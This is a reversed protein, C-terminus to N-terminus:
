KILHKHDKGKFYEARVQPSVFKYEMFLKALGVHPCVPGNLLTELRHGTARIRWTIRSCSRLEAPEEDSPFSSTWCTSAPIHGSFLTSLKWIWFTLSLFPAGLAPRLILLLQRSPCRLGQCPGPGQFRMTMRWFHRNQCTFYTESNFNENRPSRKFCGASYLSSIQEFDKHPLRLSPQWLEIFRYNTRSCRRVTRAAAAPAGSFTPLHKRFARPPPGYTEREIAADWLNAPADDLALCRESGPFFWSGPLPLRDWTSPVFTSACRQNLPGLGGYRSWRRNSPGGTGGSCSPEWFPARLAPVRSSQAWM